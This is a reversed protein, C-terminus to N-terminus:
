MQYGYSSLLENRRNIAEQLTAYSGYFKHKLIVQFRGNFITIYREGSRGPPLERFGRMRDASYNTNYKQTCWELNNAANNARNHDRHNVYDQGEKRPLFAAAVLRHIYFKKRRADKAQLGVIKYGNGNDTPTLLRNTITWDNKHHNWYKLRRINGADSVQYFGEFGKIDKWQEM